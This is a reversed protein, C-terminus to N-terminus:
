EVRRLRNADVHHFLEQRGRVQMVTDEVYAFSGDDFLTVKLEYRVTKFERVLFPSSCIGFTESGAEAELTFEKAGPEVIGGAIVTIGRPVAFCRMVQRQAADWLWYGNEEHFPADAGIRWATTAYRLGYLTQEHNDVQGTPVFTLRERYDSHVPSRDPVKPAEDSGKDGEWVGVLAGLPGLTEIEENTM